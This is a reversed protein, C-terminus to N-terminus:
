IRGHDNCEEKFVVPEGLEETSDGRSEMLALKAALEM